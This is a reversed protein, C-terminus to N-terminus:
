NLYYDPYYTDDDQELADYYISFITEFQRYDNEDCKVLIKEDENIMYMTNDFVLFLSPDNTTEIVDKGDDDLISYISKNYDIRKWVIFVLEDLLYYKGETKGNEGFSCDEFHMPKGHSNLYAWLHVGQSSIGIIDKEVLVLADITQEYHSVTDQFCSYVDNYVLCQELYNYHSPTESLESSDVCFVNCSITQDYPSILNNSSETNDNSLVTCGITSSLIVLLVVVAKKIQDCGFLVIFDFHKKM